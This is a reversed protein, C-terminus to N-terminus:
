PELAPLVPLSLRRDRPATVLIKLKIALSWKFFATARPPSIGRPESHVPTDETRVPTWDKLNLHAPLKVGALTALRLTRDKKGRYLDYRIKGSM